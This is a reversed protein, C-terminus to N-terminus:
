VFLNRYSGGKEYVKDCFPKMTIPLISSKRAVLKMQYKIIASNSKAIAPTIRGVNM